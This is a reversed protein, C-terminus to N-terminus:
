PVIIQPHSLVTHLITGVNMIKPESPIRLARGDEIDVRVTSAQLTVQEGNARTAGECITYEVLTVLPVQRILLSLFQAPAADVSSTVSICERTVSHVEVM